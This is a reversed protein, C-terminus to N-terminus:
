GIFIRCTCAAFGGDVGTFIDSAGLLPFPHPGKDIHGACVPCFHVGVEVESNRSNGPIGEAEAQLFLLGTGVLSARSKEVSSADAEICKVGIKGLFTGGEVKGCAPPPLETSSEAKAELFTIM